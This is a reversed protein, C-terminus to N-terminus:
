FLFPLVLSLGQIQPYLPLDQEYRLLLVREYFQGDAGM